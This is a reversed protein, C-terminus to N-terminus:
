WWRDDESVSKHPKEGSLYRKFDKELPYMFIAKRSLEKKSYRDMRGRGKTEGICVWNAAKYCTGAFHELDVFTELMVPEYYYRERWDNQIQKAILSLAKSALYKIKVWPLILYRSNNIILFLHKKRMENNWGIWQERSELALAAASFQMCGLDREGSKIMYYLRDGFATRDGLMHYTDIYYKWRKMEETGARVLEVTISKYEGVSGTLEEKVIQAVDYAKKETKKAVGKQATPKPAPPLKILLNRELGELFEICLNTKLKGSNTKWNLFECVTEAFEKRTLDKYIRRTWQILEIEEPLFQRGAHVMITEDVIEKV